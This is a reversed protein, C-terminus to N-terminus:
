WTVMYKLSSLLATTETARLFVSNNKFHKVAESAEVKGSDRKQLMLELEVKLDTADKDTTRARKKM